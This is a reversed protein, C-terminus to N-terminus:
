VISYLCCWIKEKMKDQIEPPLVRGAFFAAERKPTLVKNEVTTVYLSFLGSHRYEVHALLIEGFSYLSKIVNMDKRSFWMNSGEVRLAVRICTDMDDLFWVTKM